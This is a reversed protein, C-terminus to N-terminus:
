HDSRTHKLHSYIDDALEQTSGISQSIKIICYFFLTNFHM